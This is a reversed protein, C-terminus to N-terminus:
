RYMALRVRPRTFMVLMLIPYPLYLCVYLISFSGGFLAGMGEPMPAAGSSSPQHAAADFMDRYAPGVVLMSIAVLAGVSALGLVGWYVSWTRAWNRYRLQGIGIALLLGSMASLLLSEYGIGRYVRMMPGLMALEKQPAVSGFSSAMFGGCSGLLGGFLVLSAFIISLTGFIKPVSTQASSGSPPLSPSDVPGPSEM